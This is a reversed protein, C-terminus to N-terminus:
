RKVMIHSKRAVATWRAIEESVLHGLVEPRGGAIVFGHKKLNAAVDPEHIIRDIEGNLRGVIAPPTGAPAFVAAWTVAEMGPFGAEALTPVNPLRPDRQQGGIALARLKGAEVQPAALSSSMLTFQTEGSIAALMAPAGGRYPIQVANVGEMGTLQAIILHAQSAVGPTSYSFGGPQQKAAAFFEKMTKAHVAPNVLFLMPNKGILIVPTLDKETDFPMKAQVAPNVSHSAPVVVLTYGDPRSKAVFDTGIINNAGPKNEVVIPQKLAAALGPQILRAIVDNIGGPATPVILKIPQDPYDAAGAHTALAIAFGVIAFTRLMM